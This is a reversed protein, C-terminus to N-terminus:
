IQLKSNYRDYHLKANMIGTAVARQKTYALCDCIVSYILITFVSYQLTVPQLSMLFSAPSRAAKISSGEMSKDCVEGISPMLSLLGATCANVPAVTTM